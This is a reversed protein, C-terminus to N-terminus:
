MENKQFYYHCYTNNAQLSASTDNLIILFTSSILLFGIM